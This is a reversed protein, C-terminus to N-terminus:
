VRRADGIIHNTVMGALTLGFISPMYSVTGNVARARGHAVAEPPLPLLPPELSYVTQVGRGVDRRRLHRRLQKALKCISTDMIDGTRIMSPNLKGGAGMSAFIPIKKKWAAEILAAKSSMSDIADVVVDFEPTLIEFVSDPTLFEKILTVQCDSNIDQIRQKMVEGKSLGITSNLAVLQRNINSGSVVDHDALTIKGVGMRALAEATFSGVGGVGAIFVHAQQLLKIGEDGILIHTREFLLNSNTM